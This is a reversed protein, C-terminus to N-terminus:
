MMYPPVDARPQAVGQGVSIVLSSFKWTIFGQSRKHQFFASGQLMEPVHSGDTKMIEISLFTRPWSSLYRSNNGDSDQTYM